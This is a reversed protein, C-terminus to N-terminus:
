WPKRVDKQRMNKLIFTSGGFYISGGYLFYSSKDFRRTENFDIVNSQAYQDEVNAM